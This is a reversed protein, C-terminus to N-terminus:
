ATDNDTHLKRAVVETAKRAAVLRKRMSVEQLDLESVLSRLSEDNIRHKHREAYIADREARICRLRMEIEYVYRLKRQLVVEPQERQMELSTATGSGDDLLQLRNRYEQMLHGM